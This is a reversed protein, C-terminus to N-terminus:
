LGDELRRAAQADHSFLIVLDPMREKLARVKAFSDLLERKDGTGPLQDKELLEPRYTLDAALLLPPSQKPRVLMSMSGPTHGPTPLLIIAGDGMFDYGHTFPLIAPDDLHNLTIQTWKAGPIEIYPNRFIMYRESHPKLMHNWEVDSVFLDAHLLEQVRGIHDAHLHSYIVKRVDSLSYGLLELQKPLTEDPGIHMEFLKRMVTGTFGPPWYNPDTVVARDQGADFLVLGSAHEIVYFNLPLTTRKKGFFIWWMAPKRSGYVHEWHAEGAGTSAVSVSKIPGGKAFVRKTAKTLTAKSM